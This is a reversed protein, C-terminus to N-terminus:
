NKLENKEVEKYHESLRKLGEEFSVKHKFGLSKTKTMDVLRNNVGYIEKVPANQNTEVMVDEGVQKAIMKAITEISNNNNDDGINYAEGPKGFFWTRFIARAADSVYCFSRLADGKDRVFIKRNAKAANFFDSIVKGDDRIGPGYALLVRLLLVEINYQRFYAMCLSEVFRKSEIYCSWTNLPDANGTYTEPTPLFEKVPNGYIEASSFFIFKEVKNDRAYDLLFWAGLVNANITDIPDALFSSPNARSAAHIIINPKHPIDFKKGVDATVFTIDKQGLLHGLRSKSTVQNKNVVILKIGLNHRKNSMVITDVLYSPLFGNGGTILITKGALKKIESDFEPLIEEELDKIIRQTLM